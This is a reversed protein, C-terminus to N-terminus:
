LRNEEDKHDGIKLLTTMFGQYLAESQEKIRKSLAAAQAADPAPVEIKMLLGAEDAMTMLVTYKGDEHVLTDMHVYSDRLKEKRYKEIAKKTEYRVPFALNEALLEVTERGKETIVYGGSQEVLHGTGVLDPLGEIVDFYSLSDDHFALDYVEEAPVPEKMQNLIYLILIKVDIYDHLFGCHDM